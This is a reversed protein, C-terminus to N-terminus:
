RTGTSTSNTDVDILQDWTCAITIALWCLDEGSMRSAADAAAKVHQRIRAREGQFGGPLHEWRGEIEAMLEAAELRRQYREGTSVGESALYAAYAEDWDLIDAIIGNM